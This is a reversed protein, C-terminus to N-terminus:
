RSRRAVRARNGLHWAATALAATGTGAAFVAIGTFLTTAAALVGIGIVPIAVGLYICVYFAASVEARRERPAIATLEDQAALFALGHGAGAVVSGLVLLAPAELPEALVLGLLGLALLALGGAQAAAPPAGRRVLVQVVCSSALMMATILGLLALNDTEFVDAAYSPIVSLFLGGAVAWVAAGTVAVRAFDARIARPVGPRQIRRGAVGRSGATEPVARLAVLLAGCLAMGFVFPLVEPAPAWQALTGAVLPGSASGGSQSLTALLAPARADAGGVLEALAATAAGSMMGQALGQTARAAFLWATGDAVAFLTLAVIGIALGAAIVRRRGLRDSLQGFVLLSPILVLAYVAFILTLVATSFDFRESYGAYLPTALNACLLMSWFAATVVAPARAARTAPGAPATEASTM